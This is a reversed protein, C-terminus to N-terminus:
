LNCHNHRRRHLRWYDARNSGGNVVINTSDLTASNIAADFILDISDSRGISNAAGGPYTNVLNLQAKSNNSICFTFVCLFSFQITLVKM